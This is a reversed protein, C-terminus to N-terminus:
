WESNRLTKAGFTKTTQQTYSLNERDNLKIISNSLQNVVNLVRLTLRLHMYGYIYRDQLSLSCNPHTSACTIKLYDLLSLRRCQGCNDRLRTILSFQVHSVTLIVCM